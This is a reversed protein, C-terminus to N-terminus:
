FHRHYRVEYKFLMNNCWCDGHTIVMKDKPAQLEEIFFKDLNLMLRPLADELKPDGEAIKQFVPIISELFKTMSEKEWDTPEKKLEQSIENFLEPNKEKMAYSVAHFKGYTSMVLAIHDVNMPLKRNWLGYGNRSLNELVLCESYDEECKGYCKPFNDFPTELNLEEQFTTFTGFIKDYLYIERLFLERIPIARRFKENSPAKKVILDIKKDNSNITVGLIQGVYNDGKAATAYEEIKYNTFENNEAIEKLLNYQTETLNESM